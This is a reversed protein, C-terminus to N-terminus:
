KSPVEEYFLDFIVDRISDDNVYFEEYVEGDVYEGELHVMNDMDIDYGVVERALYTIEDVSLDTIVHEKADRYLKVPFTVDEKTKSKAKGVLSKLYQKQRKMRKQNTAREEINIASYRYRVFTLADDGRLTIEAGETWKKNLFSLDEQVVVPVGGVAETLIPVAEMDMTVFGHIKVGYLLNSVAKEVLQSSKMGDTGYCYQLTIHMLKTDYYEGYVNYRDVEVMTDRNIEIARVTENHPNIVFLVITDSQGAIGPMREDILDLNDHKDAGLCLISIIDDNYEYVKGDYYIQGEELEPMDNEDIEQQIEIERMKEALAATDVTARAGYLRSKGVAKVVAYTGILVTAMCLLILGIIVAIRSGSHMKISRNKRRKKKGM